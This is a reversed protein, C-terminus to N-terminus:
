GASWSRSWRRKSTTRTSSTSTSGASSASCRGPSCCTSCSRRGVSRIRRGCGRCSACATSRSASWRRWTSRRRTPSSTCTTGPTPSARPSSACSSRRVACARFPCAAVSRSAIAVRPTMRSIGAAPRRRLDATGTAAYDSEAQSWDAPRRRWGRAAWRTSSAAMGTPRAAVDCLAMVTPAMDAIQAGDVRGPQVPAGSLMFLGDPRHSGSMGALKGGLVAPDLVEVAPGDAGYSPVGVYSYGGPTALELVLDPAMAVCPGSYLEDRHWVQAVVREGTAPARWDLLAARLTECLAGYDRVPVTGCRDRGQVNLWIAPFYNLEESFARTGSWDIGGFRVGSELRSALAGDGLRFCAAQLSEPVARV